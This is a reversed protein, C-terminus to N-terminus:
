TRPPDPDSFRPQAAQCRSINAEYQTGTASGRVQGEGGKSLRSFVLAEQVLAYRRVTGSMAICSSAHCERGAGCQRGNSGM